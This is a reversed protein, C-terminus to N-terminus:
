VNAGSDSKHYSKQTDSIMGYFITYNLLNLIDNKRYGKILWKSGTATSSFNPNDIYTLVTSSRTDILFEQAYDDVEFSIYYDVADTPWVNTGNITVTKAVADVDATGEKDSSTIITYANTFQIQKYSCRLGRAPFRRNATLM